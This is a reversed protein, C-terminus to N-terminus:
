IKNLVSTRPSPFATSTNASRATTSPLSMSCFFSVLLSSSVPCSVYGFYSWSEEGRMSVSPSSPCSPTPHLSVLSLALSILMTTSGRFCDQCFSSLPSVLLNSSPWRLISSAPGSISSRSLAAPWSALTLVRPDLRQGTPFLSPAPSTASWGAAWTSSGSGRPGQWRRWTGCWGTSSLSRLWCISSGSFSHIHFSITLLFSPFNCSILRKCILTPFHRIFSLPKVCLLLM